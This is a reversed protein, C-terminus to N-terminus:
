VINKEQKGTPDDKVVGAEESSVGEGNDKNDIDRSREAEEEISRKFDNATRKMEALAKGLTRALEPLKQPGFVVLALVLIIILEPMGYGLM